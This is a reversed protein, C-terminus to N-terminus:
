GLVLGRGKIWSSWNIHGVDMSEVLDPATLGCFITFISYTLDFREAWLTILTLHDMGYTLLHDWLCSSFLLSVRWLLLCLTDRSLILITFPNSSLTTLQLFVLHTKNHLYISTSFSFRIDGQAFGMVFIFYIAVFRLLDAAMMRYIMIVTPGTLKFGRFSHGLPNLSRVQPKITVNAEM